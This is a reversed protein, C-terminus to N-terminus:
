QACASTLDDFSVRQGNGDIWTIVLGFRNFRV